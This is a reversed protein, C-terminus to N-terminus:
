GLFVTIGARWGDRDAALCIGEGTHNIEQRDDPLLADRLHAWCSGCDESQPDAWTARPLATAPLALFRRAISLDYETAM